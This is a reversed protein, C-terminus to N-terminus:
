GRWGTIYEAPVKVLVYLLYIIIPRFLPPYMYLTYMYVCHCHYINSDISCLLACTCTCQLVYLSVTYTISDELNKCKPINGHHIIVTNLVSTINTVIHDDPFDLWM